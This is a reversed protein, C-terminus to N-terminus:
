IRGLHLDLQLSQKRSEHGSQHTPPTIDVSRFSHSSASPECVLVAINAVRIYHTDRMVCTSLQAPGCDPLQKACEARTRAFVLANGLVSVLAM